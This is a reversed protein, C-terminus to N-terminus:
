TGLDEPEFLTLQKPEKSRPLESGGGVGSDDIHDGGFYARELRGNGRIHIAKVGDADLSRAVLHHRHCRGPDEESCLLVAKKCRGIGIATKLGKRFWEKNAIIRYDPARKKGDDDYSYCTPDEPRGGLVDGMFVYEVGEEGLAHELNPRNFHSVYASFPTTRVDIVTEIAHSRLLGLFREMSLNSHGITYIVPGKEQTANATGSAGPASQMKM